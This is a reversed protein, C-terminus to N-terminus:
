RSMRQILRNSQSRGHSQPLLTTTALGTRSRVINSAFSPCLQDDSRSQRRVRHAANLPDYASIGIRAFDHEALMEQSETSTLWETSCVQRMCRSVAFWESSLSQYADEANARGGVLASCSAMASANLSASARMSDRSCSRALFRWSLCPAMCSNSVPLFRRGPNTSRSFSLLHLQNRLSQRTNCVARHM